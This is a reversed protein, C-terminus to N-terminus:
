AIESCRRAYVVRSAYSSAYACLMPPGGTITGDEWEIKLQWVTLCWTLSRVELLSTHINPAQLGLFAVM